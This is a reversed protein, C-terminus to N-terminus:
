GHEANASLGFLPLTDLLSPASGMFRRPPNGPLPRRHSIWITALQWAAAALIDNRWHDGVMVTKTCDVNLQETVTKYASGDSKRVSYQFTAFLVFRELSLKRLVRRQIDDYGETMIVIPYYRALYSLAAGAGPYLQSHDLLQDELFQAMEDIDFEIGLRQALMRLRQCRMEHGSAFTASETRDAIEAYATLVADAPISATNSIHESLRQRTRTSAESFQCITNDLDILVVDIELSRDASM